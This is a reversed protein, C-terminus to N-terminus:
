HMTHQVVNSAASCSTHRLLVSPEKYASDRSNTHQLNADKSDHVRIHQCGKAHLV